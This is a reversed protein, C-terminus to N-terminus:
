SRDYSREEDAELPIRYRELEKQAAASREEELQQLLLIAGRLYIPIACLTFFVILDFFIQLDHKSWAYGAMIILIGGGALLPRIAPQEEMARGGRLSILAAYIVMVLVTIALQM